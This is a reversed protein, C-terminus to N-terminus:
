VKPHNPNPPGSPPPGLPKPPPVAKVKQSAQATQYKQYCLLCWEAVTAPPVNTYVGNRVYITRAQRCHDHTWHRKHDETDLSYLFDGKRPDPDIPQYPNYPFHTSM